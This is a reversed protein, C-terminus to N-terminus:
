ETRRINEPLPTGQLIASRILRRQETKQAKLAKEEAMEEKTKTKHAEQFAKIEEVEGQWKGLNEALEPTPAMKYLTKGSKIASERSSLHGAYSALDTQTASLQGKAKTRPLEAVAAAHTSHIGTHYKIDDELKKQKAEREATLRAEEKSKAEAIAIDAKAQVQKLEAEREPARAEVAKAVRKKEAGPSQTILMSMVSLGQNISSQISM